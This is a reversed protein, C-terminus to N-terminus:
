ELSNVPVQTTLYAFLVIMSPESGFSEFGQPHKQLGGPVHMGPGTGDLRLHLLLDTILKHLIRMPHVVAEAVVHGLEDRLLLDPGGCDGRLFDAGQWGVEAVLYGLLLLFGFDRLDDVGVEDVVLM